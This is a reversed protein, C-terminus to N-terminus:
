CGQTDNFTLVTEHRKRCLKKNLPYHFVRLQLNQEDQHSGIVDDMLTVRPASTTPQLVWPM